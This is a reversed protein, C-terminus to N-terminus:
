LKKGMEDFDAKYSGIQSNLWEIQREYRSKLMEYYRSREQLREYTKISVTNPTDELNTDLETLRKMLAVIEANYTRVASRSARLTGSQDHRSIARTIAALKSLDRAKIHLWDQEYKGLELLVDYYKQQDELSRVVDRLYLINDDSLTRYFPKRPRYSKRYAGPWLERAMKLNNKNVLLRRDEVATRLKQMQAEIGHREGELRRITGRLEGGLKRSERDLRQSRKMWSQKRTGSFYGTLDAQIDDSVSSLWDRYHRHWKLLAAREDIKIEPEHGAAAQIQETLVDVVENAFILSWSIEDASRLLFVKRQEIGVHSENAPNACAPTSFGAALSLVLLLQVPFLFYSFIFNVPKQELRTLM